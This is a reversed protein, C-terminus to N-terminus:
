SRTAFELLTEGQVNVLILSDDGPVYAEVEKMRGFFLREHGMVTENRCWTDTVLTTEIRTAAGSVHAPAVYCNCGSFGYVRGHLFRATVLVGNPLTVISGRDDRSARLYWTDRSIYAADEPVTEKRFLLVARGKADSLSLFDGEVRYTSAKVLDVLYMSEQSHVGPPANCIANTRQPADISLRASSAEYPAWYQNCGSSGHVIGEREFRATVISGPIISEQALRGSDYAVLEWTVGSIALTDEGCPIPTVPPSNGGSEETRPGQSQTLCGSLVGALVLFLAFIAGTGLRSAGRGREEQSREGAQIRPPPIM